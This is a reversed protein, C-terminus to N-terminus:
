RKAKLDLLDGYKFKYNLLKKVKDNGVIKYEVKDTERFLPPKVLSDSAAKSYFERKSPHSDAVCNLVEGWVGLSIIREMISICDDRHIMNVYSEPNQILDGELFFKAPDRDFGVLGGFRVVTTDIALSDMFLKEVEILINDPKTVATEESIVDKANSYVSTSSVLLVKSITSRTVDQIFTKFVDLGTPPICIILIQSKLFAAIGNTRRAIDIAFPRIGATLLEDLNERSTRSGKVPYGIDVLHKALPLGLWGCGLISITQM